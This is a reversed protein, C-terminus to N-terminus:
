RASFQDSYQLDSKCLNSRSVQNIDALPEGNAGENVLMQAFTAANEPHTRLVQKMQFAYDPEFNVKKAYLIIKDFQGMEAFCQVVKHPVNGRLYISLALNLDHPKALDGLEESCDLKGESIWKEM